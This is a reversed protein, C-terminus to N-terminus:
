SNKALNEGGCAAFHMRVIKLITWLYLVIYFFLIKRSEAM